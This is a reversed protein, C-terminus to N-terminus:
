SPMRVPDIAFDELIAVKLGEPDSAYVAHQCDLRYAELRGDDQETISYMEGFAWRLAALEMIPPLDDEDLVATM